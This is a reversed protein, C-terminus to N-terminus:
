RMMADDNNEKAESTGSEEEFNVAVFINQLDAPSCGRKSHDVVRAEHCFSMWQPMDIMM